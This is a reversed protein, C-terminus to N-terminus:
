YPKMGQQYSMKRRSDQGRMQTDTFEAHMEYHQCCIVAHTYTHTHSRTHIQSIHTDSHHHAPLSSHGDHPTGKRPPRSRSDNEGSAVPLESEMHQKEGVNM